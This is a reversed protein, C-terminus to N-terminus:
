IKQVEFYLLAHDSYKRTWADKKKDTTEDVWGRVDVPKGGFSKFKLHKAAVVHDLNSPIVLQRIVPARRQPLFRKSQAVRKFESALALKKRLGRFSAGDGSM